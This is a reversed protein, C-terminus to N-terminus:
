PATWAWTNTGTVGTFYAYSDDEYAPTAVSGNRYITRPAGLKPIAVTGAAGNPAEVTMRFATDSLDWRVGIAGQATPVRGQAFSLGQPFPKVQWSRYAVDTPTIGLVYDSLASTAGTSWAHSASDGFLHPISASLNGDPLNIREWTTSGADSDAMYGWTDLMQQMALDPRGALYNVALNFGGIFPSVIQPYGGIGAEAARPGYQTKLVRAMTDVIQASQALDAVGYLVAWTNADQVVFGRADTSADYAGLTPNWLTTNIAHKLAAAQTGYQAAAATDGLATALAAASTLSNYQLVNAATNQGVARNVVSWDLSAIPPVDVLGTAPNILSNGYEVSRKVATWIQAVFETDGTLNYYNAVNQALNMSYTAGWFECGGKAVGSCVGPAPGPESLRSPVAVPLSLFWLVFAKVPNDAMITLNNRALVDGSAGFVDHLTQGATLLDGAWIARDRKAAEGLISLPYPGAFGPTGAKIEDLNVTYAGAYWIRNLQDSNTLLYGAYDDASRLPSTMETTVKSLTISGPVKLTILQYQYGGQLQTGNWQGDGFWVPTYDVTLPAGSNALLTTSGAGDGIPSMNSTSESYATQIINPSSSSYTYRTYGGVDQGYDVIVVPAQGGLSYTLTIDGNPAVTVGGSKYYLSVPAVICVSGSSCGPPTLVYRQWDVPGIPTTASLAAAGASGNLPPQPETPAVTIPVRAPVADTYPSALGLLQATNDIIPGLVPIRSVLDVIGHFTPFGGPAQDSVVVNFQDFGGLSNMIAPATYTFDGTSQDVSLTGGNQPTSIYTYHLVDGDADAAGINGTVVAQGTGSTSQGYVVPTITPSANFFERRVAALVGWNAPPDSVPTPTGGAGARPSSGAAATAVAALTRAQAAVAIRARQAAPAPRKSVPSPTGRGRDAASVRAPVSRATPGRDAGTAATDGADAWASGTCAVLAATGIGLAVALGGVRGVHGSATV